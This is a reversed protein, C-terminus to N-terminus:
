RHEPTGSVPQTAGAAEAIRQEFAEHVTRYKENRPALAVARAYAKEAGSYDYAAEHACGLDYYATASDPEMETARQLTLIARDFRDHALYFEGLEVADEFRPEYDIARRLAKEYFGLAGAKGASRALTHELLYPDAGRRIGEDVTRQALEFDGTPGLVSNVLEEYPAPEDPASEQAQRLIKAAQDFDSALAYYHGAKVEWAIRQEEDSTAQAARVYAKAADRYRGLDSYFITVQDLAQDFKEDVAREFGSAIAKQEDSLLWPIAEPSLYRHLELRPARYVSLTIQRLGESRKGALLLGDAYLDRALPDNPDLMMAAHFENDRVRASVGPPILAGLRIHAASVAPHAMVEAEAQVLSVHARSAYPYTGGDQLQAAVILATSAAAVAVPGFFRRLRTRGAACARVSRLRREETLAIRLALALLITFLLANALIHLSFDVTEHVLAAGIGGLLGAYLPWKEVSLFRAARWLRRAVLYAFWTLLALGSLGTEAVFQLYDNEAERFFVPLWPPRQYRPFLEPWCGLGAGFLPFEAIMHVTDEWNEPRHQLGEGTMTFAFRNNVEIRGSPGILYLVAALLIVVGAAALPMARLSFGQILGAACGRAFRFCLAVAGCVALGAAIWGARSLSLMIATAILLASCAWIPGAAMHKRHGLPLHFITGVVSLPLMMALYNAFHDPDVFPGSARSGEGFPGPWDYPRFFWLIRGNWWAREVLGVSAVAVATTMMAFVITRMFSQERDGGGALDFPYALIVFFLAALAVAEALGSATVTPALSLTRWRWPVVRQMPAAARFGNTRRAVNEREGTTLSGVERVPGINWIASVTEYPAGVPWGPLSLRYIEYTRPSILHLIPAPLPALQCLILALMAAIPAGLRRCEALDMRAPVPSVTRVCVKVMWLCVLAFTITEALVFSGRHVAGFALPTYVVLFALGGIVLCDIWRLVRSFGDFARGLVNNLM